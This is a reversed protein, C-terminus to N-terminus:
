APPPHSRASPGSGALFPALLELYSEAAKAWSFEREARERGARGLARGWAPEAALRMLAKALQEPRDLSFLVGTRGDAVVGRNGPVDSAFVPLGSAMAELVVNSMGEYFSPIILADAGRYLCPLDPRAQWGLWRLQSALGLRRAQAELVHRQSGDGVIDLVFRQLTEAPLAALQHLLVGLNKEPHIRGVFLLRLANGTPVAPAPHFVDCDVGNPVVRVPFPDASRSAAALSESNAVIATARRLVARRLPRTVLHQWGLNPVHGPVDGGRLSVVYPIQHLRSLRLAAPGSPITFFAITAGPRDPARLRSVAARSRLLFLIMQWRTAREPRTRGVCLRRVRLGPEEDKESGRGLASTLIHGRHGLRVFARALAQTASAAGGGVPPYEYNVFFFTM